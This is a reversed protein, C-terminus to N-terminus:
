SARAICPLAGLPPVDLRAAPACSTRTEETQTFDPVGSALLSRVDTVLNADPPRAVVPASQTLM